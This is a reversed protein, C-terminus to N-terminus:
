TSGPWPPARRARDADREAGPEPPRHGPEVGLEEVERHQEVPEVRADDTSPRRSPAPPPPGRRREPGHPAGDGQRRGLGHPRFGGRASRRSNARAPRARPRQSDWGVRMMTRVMCRCGPRAASDTAPTASAAASSTTPVKKRRSSRGSRRVRLEVDRLAVIDITVSRRAPTPRGREVFKRRSGPTIAASGNRATGARIRRPGSRAVRRHEARGAPRASLRTTSPARPDHLTGGPPSTSDPM